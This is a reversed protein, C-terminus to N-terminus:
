NNTTNPKLKRKKKSSKEFLSELLHNGEDSNMEKFSIELLNEPISINPLSTELFNIKPIEFTILPDVVVSEFVKPLYNAYKTLFKKRREMETKIIRDLEVSVANFDSVLKKSFSIRRSTEKLTEEYAEPLHQIINLYRFNQDQLYSASKYAVIKNEISDVNEKNFKDFEILLKVKNQIQAFKDVSQIIDL